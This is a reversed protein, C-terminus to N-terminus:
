VFSAATLAEKTSVLLTNPLRGEAEKKLFGHNLTTRKETKSCM